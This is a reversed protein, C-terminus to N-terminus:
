QGAQDVNYLTASWGKELKAIKVVIRVGKGAKITGQWNGTIDQAQTGTGLMAVLAVVCLMLGKM